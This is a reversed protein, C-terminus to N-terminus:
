SKCEGAIYCVSPFIGNCAGPSLNRLYRQLYWNEKCKSIEPRPAQTRNCSMESVNPWENKVCKSVTLPGVSLFYKQTQPNAKVNLHHCDQSGKWRIDKTLTQHFNTWLSGLEGGSGGFLSGVVAESCPCVDPTLCLWTPPKIYHWIGELVQSPAFAMGTWLLERVGSKAVYMGGMVLWASILLSLQDLSSINSCSKRVTDRPAGLLTACPM